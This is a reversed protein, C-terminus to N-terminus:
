TCKRREKKSETENRKNQGANEIRKVMKEKIKFELISHLKRDERTRSEIDDCLNCEMQAVENLKVNM